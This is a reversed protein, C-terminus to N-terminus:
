RNNQEFRMKAYLPRVNTYKECYIQYLNPQICLYLHEQALSFRGSRTSRVNHATLSQPDVRLDDSRACGLVAGAAAPEGPDDSGDPRVPDPDAGRGTRREVCGLATKGMDTLIVLATGATGYSRFFNTLGANGSGHKRVDDQMLASICVSGNLNGLLYSTLVAILIPFWM